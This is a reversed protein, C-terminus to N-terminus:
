KLPEDENIENTEIKFCNCCSSKKIKKIFYAGALSLPVLISSILAISATVIAVTSGATELIM